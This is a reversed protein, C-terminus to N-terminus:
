IADEGEQIQRDFKSQWTNYGALRTAEPRQFKKAFTNVLLHNM